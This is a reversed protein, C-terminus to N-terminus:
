SSPARRLLDRVTDVLLTTSEQKRLLADARVERAKAELQEDREGTLLVIAVDRIRVQASSRVKSVFAIGDVGPMRVDAIVIAVPTTELIALAEGGESAEVFDLTDPLAQRLAAKLVSRIVRSDDVILATSRPKGQKGPEM